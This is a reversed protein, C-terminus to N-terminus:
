CNMKFKTHRPSSFNYHMALYGIDVVQEVQKKMTSIVNVKHYIIFGKHCRIHLALINPGVMGSQCVICKMIQNQGLDVHQNDNM